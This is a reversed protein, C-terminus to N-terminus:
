PGEKELILLLAVKCIAESLTYVRNRYNDWCIADGHGSDTMIEIILQAASIDESYALLPSYVSRGDNDIYREMDGFTEDWLVEHGIIVEAVKINLERGPRMALIEARTM